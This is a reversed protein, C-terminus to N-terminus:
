KLYKLEFRQISNKHSNKIVRRIIIDPIQDRTLIIERAHFINAAIFISKTLPSISPIFSAKFSSASSFEIFSRALPNIKVSKNILRRTFIRYWKKKKKKKASPIKKIMAFFVTPNSSIKTADRLFYLKRRYILTLKVFHVNKKKKGTNKDYKGIIFICTYINSGIFTLPYKYIKKWHKEDVIFLFFNKKRGYFRYEFNARSITSNKSFCTMM